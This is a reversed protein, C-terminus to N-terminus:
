IVDQSEPTIWLLGSAKRLNKSQAIIGVYCAQVDEVQDMTKIRDSTIDIKVIIIGLLIGIARVLGVVHMHRVANAHEQLVEHATSWERRSQMVPGVRRLLRRRVKTVIVLATIKVSNQFPLFCIAHFQSVVPANDLSRSIDLHDDHRRLILLENAEDVGLIFLSGNSRNVSIMMVVFNVM